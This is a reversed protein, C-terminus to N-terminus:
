PTRGAIRGPANFFRGPDACAANATDGWSSAPATAWRLRVVCQGGAVREVSRVASDQPMVNLATLLVGDLVVPSAPIQPVGNALRVSFTGTRSNAPIQIQGFALWVRTASPSWDAAHPGNDGPSPPECFGGLLLCTIGGNALVHDSVPIAPAGQGRPVLDWRYEVDGDL